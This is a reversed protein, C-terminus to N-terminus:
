APRCPKPKYARLWLLPHLDAALLLSNVKVLASRLKQSSSRGRSLAHLCVLSDILRLVRCGSLRRRQVMWRLTTLVARMELINIHEGSRKWAWGAVERWRWLKAPVSARLRHFKVQPESASQVMLDEGKISVLGLLKRLLSGELTSVLRGHVGLPPRILLSQLREGRGPTLANVIDQLSRPRCLGLKYGLQYVLWAIVGVQWSNGVLTLRIDNWSDGKQDQKCVCPRTYGVPIGMCTECESINPLRGVGKKNWLLQHDRYQYPPFRHQDATWRVKEHEACRDLGAPRRGPSSRPRSTTFTPFKCGDQLSWGSELLADVHVKANLEVSGASGWRTEEPATAKAGEGSNLEWSVWYLRPRHCLTIGVSDIFYPQLEVTRSMVERDEDSMSAVSEMVLHTQAWPFYEEFLARIRPVEQFLSSRLDLLAGKRGANLGSVGQCPPGAGILM